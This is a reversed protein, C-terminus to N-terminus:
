KKSSFAAQGPSYGWNCNVVSCREFSPFRLFRNLPGLRMSDFDKPGLDNMMVQYRIGYVIKKNQLQNNHGPGRGLGGHLTFPLQM